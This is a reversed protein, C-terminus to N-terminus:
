AARREQRGVDSDHRRRGRGAPVALVAAARALAAEDDPVVPVGSAETTRLVLEKITM